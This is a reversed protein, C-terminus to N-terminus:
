RNIDLLETEWGTTDLTWIGPQAILLLLEQIEDISGADGGAASALGVSSLLAGLLSSRPLYVLEPPYSRKDGIRALLYDLAELIGGDQDALGSELAKSGMWVRGGALEHVRKPAMKRGKTVRDKFLQYLEGLERRMHDIEADSLRRDLSELDAHSGRVTHERGIKLLDLLGSVVPKGYIVGISGTVSGPMIFIRPAGAAVYYGGSAAVSGVSVVLPKRKAAAIVKRNLIEAALALGGPSQIRLLIGDITSDAAARDLAAGVSDSGSFRMGILPITRSAGTVMIGELLIVAVRPNSGWRLDQRSRSPYRRAFRVGAGERTRIMKHLDGRGGIADVIGLEKARRPAMPAADIWGKVDEVPRARMAAIDGAFQDYMTDMRARAAVRVVERSERQVFGDLASKFEDFRVVQVEIGLAALTDEYFRRVLHIGMMRVLTSPNLIIHDGHAAIYVARNRADELYVYVKKGHARLDAISRAIEQAQTFGGSFNTIKLLIGAVYRDRALSRLKLRFDLLSTGPSQFLGSRPREPLGGTLALEVFTLRSAAVTPEETSRVSFGAQFGGYGNQDFFAGGHVRAKRIGPMFSMSAAGGFAWDGEEHAATFGATFALGDVPAIRLRGLLHHSKLYLDGEWDAGLSLLPNSLPRFALGTRVTRELVQGAWRPRNIHNFSAGLSMWRTPRLLLGLSGDSRHDWADGRLWRWSLGLAGLRGFSIATGFGGTWINGGDILPAHLHEFRGALSLGVRRGSGLRGGLLVRQGDMGPLAASRGREATTHLFDLEWGSFMGLSGPNADLDRLYWADATSQLPDLIQPWREAPTQQGLATTATSVAVLMVATFVAVQTRTM